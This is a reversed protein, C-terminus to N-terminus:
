SREASAAQARVQDMDLAKAQAVLDSLGARSLAGAQAFILYGDRFAMVTPISMIQLDQALGREADTDVKGFVVDPHEQSVGEFVPGFQRCPGCWAAWFDIFVVGSKITDEFTGATVAITSM